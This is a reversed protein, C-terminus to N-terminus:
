PTGLRALAAKGARQMRVSNVSQTAQQFAARSQEDKWQSLTVMAAIRAAENTSLLFDRLKPTQDKLDM